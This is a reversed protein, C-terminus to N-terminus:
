MTTTKLEVYDQLRKKQEEKIESFEVGVRYRDSHPLNQTWRVEGVPSIFNSIINLELSLLANPAIFSQSIFGMGELSINESITHNIENSGLLQFRLPTKLRIRSHLRKERIDGTM